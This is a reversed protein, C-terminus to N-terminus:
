PFITLLMHLSLLSLSLTFAFAGALKIRYMIMEKKRRRGPQTQGAWGAKGSGPTIIAREAITEL